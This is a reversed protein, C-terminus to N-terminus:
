RGVKVTNKLYYEEKNQKLKNFLASKIFWSKNNIESIVTLNESNNDIFELVQELTITTINEM